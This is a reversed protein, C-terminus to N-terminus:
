YDYNGFKFNYTVSFIPNAFISVKYGRVTGGRAKFYENYVNNRGTLNYISFVWIGHMFKEAKLNGEVKVSMDVRFYDSIRYQNRETFNVLQIGDQYYANTPYTIPKGSSYVLNSSFSLRKLFKYNLVLNLSHPKDHNAPYPQGFNIQAGEIPNDVLVKANSYTYNLWGNFRGVSKKLMIEIGYVDLDGQLIDWEPVKNILLDAGDRFEVLKDVRKYYGELSFEYRKNLLYTYIGASVQEGVMPEINYDSLKWKDTPALAITNSLLFTYQHLKNYSAKFSWDDSFNYKLALRYDLGSYPKVLAYDDFYLTDVISTEEILQDNQYKFVSQPGLYGYWNYRLGAILTFRANPTWTESLYIGSELARETGLDQLVIRSDEGAPAFEGRDIDYLIANGGFTIDHKLSPRFTFDLRGEKHILLNSQAYAEIPVEFNETNLGYKSYIFSLDLNNKKNFFHKWTASTGQNEINYQTTGGFDIDDLSYYAFAEVRNKQNINFKLKTIGDGFYVRSRNFDPNEILKLIWNSYTSRLGLLFSSKEKQIPGELLLNGTIPSIGGRVKFEEDDGAKAKIDFISALRGGFRAPINSKSLSFESIADSNFVSFFGFLHSTNYVPVNDIYFLNQDAPSGRVNFGAAGEGVSQIGPLLTAVKLIDKEGLVLPIEKINKTSLKEFGMQASQVRDYRDSTVVVGELTFSTPELYFDASGDSLLKLRIKQEKHNIENIQLTYSGKDVKLEFYGTEDAAAGVGLEEILITAGFLATSDELDRLYGNLQAKKSRLGDQKNGVVLVQALHENQTEIFDKSERKEEKKAEQEQVLRPYISKALATDIAKDKTIFVNHGSDVAMKLGQKELETSLYDFWPLETRSKSLNIGALDEPNFYFSYDTTKEIQEVYAIFERAGNDKVALHGQEQAFLNSTVFVWFLIPILFKYRPISRNM